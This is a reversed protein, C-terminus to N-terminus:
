WEEINLEDIEPWMANELTVMDGWGINSNIKGTSSNEPRIAPWTTFFALVLLYSLSLLPALYYFGYSNGLSICVCLPVFNM